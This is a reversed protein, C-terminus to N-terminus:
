VRPDYSHLSGLAQLSPGLFSCKPFCVASPTPPNHQCPCLATLPRGPVLAPELKPTVRQSCNWKLEYVVLLEVQEGQLTKSLLPSWTDREIRLAKQTLVQKIGVVRPALHVLWRRPVPFSLCMSTSYSARPSRAQPHSARSRAWPVREEDSTAGLSAAPPYTLPLLKSLISAPLQPAGGAERLYHANTNGNKLPWFDTHWPAAPVHSM